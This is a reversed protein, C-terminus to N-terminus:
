IPNLELLNRVGDCVNRHEDGFDNTENDMESDNTNNRQFPVLLKRFYTSTVKSYILWNFFQIESFISGLM